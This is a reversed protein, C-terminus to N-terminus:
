LVVVVLGGDGNLVSACGRRRLENVIPRKLRNRAADVARLGGSLLRAAFLALALALAVAGLTSPMFREGDALRKDTGLLPGVGGGRTDVEDM